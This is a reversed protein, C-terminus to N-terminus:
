PVAETLTIAAASGGILVYQNEFGKFWDQFIALGRVM